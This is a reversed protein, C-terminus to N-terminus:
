KNLVFEDVVDRTAADVFQWRLQRGAISMRGYGIVGSQAGTAACCWPFTGTICSPPGGNGERNGAAGNVIYIPAAPSSYSSNSTTTPHGRYVPLSREYSHKHGAIVVDVAHAHFAEETQERLLGAFSACDKGGSSCYMPRHGSAIIFTDGNSRSQQLDRWLWTAQAPDIDATDLFTETNLQLFHVPGVSFSYYMRDDAELSAPTWFHTKYASFNYWIEHNGPTVMYPVSSTIHQMKTLFNDWHPMDGDAYSVDGPHLILDVLGAAVEAGLAAVTHDSANDYAMDAVQLLRLPRDLSGVNAPLSNYTFVASWGGDGDGVRYSYTTGPQLEMIATHVHGVWGGKTYTRSSGSASFPFATAHAGAAWQVIHTATDHLTSWTAAM